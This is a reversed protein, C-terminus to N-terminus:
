SPLQTSELTSSLLSVIALILRRLLRVLHHCLSPSPSNDWLFREHSEPGCIHILFVFLPSSLPSPSTTSCTHTHTHTHTHTTLDVNFNSYGKGGRVEWGEKGGM